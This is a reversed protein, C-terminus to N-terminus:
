SIFGYFEETKDAGILDTIKQKIQWQANAFSSTHLMYGEQLLWGGLGIGKLFVENGEENIIKKGSVKLFSQSFSNAILFPFIILISLGRFLFLKM